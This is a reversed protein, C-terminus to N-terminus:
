QTRNLTFYNITNLTTSTRACTTRHLSFLCCRTVSYTDFHTLVLVLVLRATTSWPQAPGCVCFFKFIIHIAQFISTWLNEVFLKLIQACGSVFHFHIFAHIFSYVFSRITPHTPLHTAHTHSFFSCLCNFLVLSSILHSSRWLQHQGVYFRPWNVDSSCLNFSKIQYHTFKKRAIAMTRENMSVSAMKTQMILM